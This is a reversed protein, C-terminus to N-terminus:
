LREECSSLVKSALRTQTVPGHVCYVRTLIMISIHGLLFISKAQCVRVDIIKFYQVEMEGTIRGFALNQTVEESVVNYLLSFSLTNRKEYMHSKCCKKEGALLVSTVDISKTDLLTKCVACFHEM